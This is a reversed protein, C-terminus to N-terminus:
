RSIVYVFTALATLVQAFPVLTGKWDSNSEPKIPVVVEAGAEPTPVGDPIVSFRHRYVERFGNPQVVYSRDVNGTPLAGGAADVYYKLDAGPLYTISSPSSVAGSVRVVPSYRPVYISDGDILMINDRSEPNKLADALSIDIRGLGGEKRVLVSGQAYGQPTVGGARKVIDAFREDLSGLTYRGPFKVEGTVYVRRSLDWGPQRLILINDYAKLPVDEARGSPAAVGPPGLYKGDPSREFLYTSDLPVRFTQAFTGQERRAVRAIEAEKLYASEALGGALLIADRLTMGERYPVSGASRVDGSVTVTRNEAFEARSFVRVSDGEQLLLDNTLRGTSDAFSTRLQEPAVAGPAYRTVLVQDLFVGPRVGGVARLADSLRMGPQVGLDGPAWVHGTVAIQNRVVDSVGFVQVEDGAEIPFAPVAGGTLQDAPIDLVVREAGQPARAQPALIRRIQIRHRSANPTFGGAYTVLDRLTEGSKLEFIAPRGVEGKITVRTGHFPIFLVDGSQLRSDHSADGRVLYDYLDLSDILVSGRRLEVRRLSGNVSPGGAAYLATLLTGASSVQYSGPAMAEGIVFVQNARVRAVSLSLKTSANPSRTLGSYVRGMRSYLVDRIQDLTLNAVFVQGVQPIVIFGEPSVEPTYSAEVGGTLIIALVDRPGVKYNADVPGATLPDFRSTSSRFIDLGFIRSHPISDVALAPALHSSDTASRSEGPLTPRQGAQAAAEILGLKQLADIAEPSPASAAGTSGPLYQDLMNEPYGAAKLRSRIQEPTLGSNLLRARVQAVVDPNQLAAEAQAPSPLQTSALAPVVAFAVAFFAARALLSKM